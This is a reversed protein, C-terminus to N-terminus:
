DSDAEVEGPRRIPVIAVEQIGGLPEAPKPANEDLWTSVQQSQVRITEAIGVPETVTRSVIRGPLRPLFFSLPNTDPQMTVQWECSNELSPNCNVPAKRNDSEGFVIRGAFRNTLDASSLQATINEAYPLAREDVALLVARDRNDSAIYTELASNLADGVEDAYEGKPHFASPSHYRPAYIPVGRPLAGSLETVNKDFTERHEESLANVLGPAAAIGTPSGILFIDVGWPTEWAGPPRAEPYAAWSEVLSYDLQNPTAPTGSLSLKYIPNKLGFWAIIVVALGGAILWQRKVM